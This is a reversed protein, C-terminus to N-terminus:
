LTSMVLALVLKRECTAKPTTSFHTCASCKQFKSYIMSAGIVKVMTVELLRRQISRTYNLQKMWLVVYQSFHMRLLQTKKSVLVNSQRLQSLYRRIFVNYIFASIPLLQIEVIIKCFHHHILSRTKMMCQFCDIQIVEIERM